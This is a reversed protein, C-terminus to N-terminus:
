WGTLKTRPQTELLHLALAANWVGDVYREELTMDKPGFKVSGIIENHNRQAMSLMGYTHGGISTRSQPVGDRREILRKVLLAIPEFEERSCGEFLDLLQEGECRPCFNDHRIGHDCRGM